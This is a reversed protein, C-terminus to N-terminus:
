DGIPGMTQGAAARQRRADRPDMALPRYIEVRDGTVVRRDDPVVEGWVGLRCAEIDLDPFDDAIASVNVARRATTGPPVSVQLVTQRAPTACAVEIQVGQSAKDM